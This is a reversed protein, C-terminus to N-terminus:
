APQRFQSPMRLFRSFVAGVLGAESECPRTGDAQLDQAPYGRGLRYLVLDQHHEQNRPTRPQPSYCRHKAADEAQGVPTMPQTEIPYANHLGGLRDGAAVRQAAMSQLFARSETQRM